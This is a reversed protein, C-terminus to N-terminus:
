DGLLAYRDLKKYAEKPGSEKTNVKMSEYFVRKSEKNRGPEKQQEFPLYIYAKKEQNEGQLRVKKMANEDIYVTRYNNPMDVDFERSKGCYLEVCHKVQKIHRVPNCWPAPKYNKRLLVVEGDPVAKDGKCKYRYAPFCTYDPCPVNVDEVRCLM